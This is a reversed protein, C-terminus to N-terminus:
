YAGELRELRELANEGHEMAEQLEAIMNECEARKEAALQKVEEVIEDFAYEDHPM